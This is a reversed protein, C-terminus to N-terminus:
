DFKCECMQSYDGIRMGIKILGDKTIELNYLNLKDKRIENSSVIKFSCKKLLNESEKSVALAYITCKKRLGFVKTIYKIMVWIMVCARIHGVQSEPGRVVVGSIYLIKSRKTQEFDLVDEGSLDNDIIRGKIFQSMFTHEMGIIGFCACLENKSNLIHIFGKPNKLRWMEAVSDTVYEQHYYPRTLYNAEKLTQATCYSAIYHDDVCEEMIIQSPLHALHGKIFAAIFGLILCLAGVILMFSIPLVTGTASLGKMISAAIGITVAFTTIGYTLGKRLRVIINSNYKRLFSTM